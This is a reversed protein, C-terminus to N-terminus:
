QDIIELKVGANRSDLKEEPLEVLGRCDVSVILEEGFVFSEGEGPVVAGTRAPRGAGLGM